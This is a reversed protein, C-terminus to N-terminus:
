NFEAIKRDRDNEEKWLKALRNLYRSYFVYTNEDIKGKKYRIDLTNRLATENKDQLWEKCTASTIGLSVFLFEERERNMGMLWGILFSVLSFLVSFILLCVVFEVKAENM